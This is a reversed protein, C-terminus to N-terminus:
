SLVVERFDSESINGGCIVTAVQKGHFRKPDELIAAIGLAASPEVVLGAHAFLLQMGTKISEESVLVCDDIVEILDDLVVQNPCRGAVGDAITNCSETEVVTKARWSLTMAPALEPQVCIVETQTLLAKAVFGIGTALAGGGLAVLIADLSPCTDALELAITGAGECTAVNDSDEILEADSSAAIDRAVAKAIEIDGDVRHIDAGFQRIRELKFPSASDAAVITSRLGRSRGSYAIAQGLNGASACVVSRTEANVEVNSLALETGRGKFCRLPNMTEVKLQLQCGLSHSLPEDAYCPTGLFVPEIVSTASRIRNLNLRM